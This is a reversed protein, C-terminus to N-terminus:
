DSIKTFGNFASPGTRFYRNMMILIMWGILKLKRVLLKMCPTLVFSVTGCVATRYIGSSYNWNSSWKKM